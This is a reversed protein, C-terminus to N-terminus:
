EKQSFLGFGLRFQITNIGPNPTALGANSIHMYRIETAINYKSRLFDEVEQANDIQKQQNTIEQNAINIRINQTLIQKDINKIEYGATNAQLVRDQLQRLFGGKRGATTSEYTRRAM